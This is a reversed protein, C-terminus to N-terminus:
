GQDDVGTDADLLKRSIAQRSMTIVTGPTVELRITDEDVSEVTGHIGGITVIRDGKDVSAILDRHQRQRQQQPRILLFYFVVVILIMPLFASLSEM